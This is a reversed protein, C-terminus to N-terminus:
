GTKMLGEQIAKQKAISARFQDYRPVMLEWCVALFNIWKTARNISKFRSEIKHITKKVNSESINLFAKSINDIEKDDLPDIEWKKLIPNIFRFGAGIIMSYQKGLSLLQEKEVEYVEEGKVKKRKLPIAKKKFDAQEKEIKKGTDKLIKISDEFSFEEEEEEKIKATNETM